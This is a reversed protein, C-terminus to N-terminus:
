FMSSTALMGPILVYSYWIGMTTCIVFCMGFGEVYHEVLRKKVAKEVEDNHALIVNNQEKEWREHMHSVLFDEKM